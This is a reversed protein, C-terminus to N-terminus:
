DASESRGIQTECLGLPFDAVLSMGRGNKFCLRRGQRDLSGKLVVIRMKFESLELVPDSYVKVVNQASSAMMERM